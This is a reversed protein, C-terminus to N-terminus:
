HYDKGSIMALALLTHMLNGFLAQDVRERYTFYVEPHNFKGKMGRSLTQLTRSSARRPTQALLPWSFSRSLHRISRSGQVSELSDESLTRM